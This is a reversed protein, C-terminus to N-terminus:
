AVQCSHGRWPDSVEVTQQVLEKAIGRGRWEAHVALHYMCFILKWSCRSAFIEPLWLLEDLIKSTRAFVLPEELILEALTKRRDSM